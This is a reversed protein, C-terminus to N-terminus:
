VNKNRCTTEPSWMGWSYFVKYILWNMSYGKEGFREIYKMASEEDLDYVKQEDFREVTSDVHEQLHSISSSRFNCDLCRRDEPFSVGTIDPKEFITFRIQHTFVTEYCFFQFNWFISIRIDFWKEVQGWLLKQSCVHNKKKQFMHYQCSLIKLTFRFRFDSTKRRFNSIKCATFHFSNLSIKNSFLQAYALWSDLTSKHLSRFKSPSIFSQEIQAAEHLRTELAKMRDYSLM